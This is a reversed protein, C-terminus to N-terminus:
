TNCKSCQSFVGLISDDRRKNLSRSCYNCKNSLSQSIHGASCFGPVDWMKFLHLQSWIDYYSGKVKDCLAFKLTNLWGTALICSSVCAAYAFNSKTYNCNKQHQYTTGYVIQAVHRGNYSGSCMDLIGERSEDVQVRPWISHNLFPAFFSRRLSTIQLLYHVRDVELFTSNFCSDSVGVACCAWLKWATVERNPDNISMGTANPRSWCGGIM